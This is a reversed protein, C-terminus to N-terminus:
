PEMSNLHFSDRCDRQTERYNLRLMGPSESGPLSWENYSTENAVVDLVRSDRLTYVLGHQGNGIANRPVRIKQTKVGVEGSARLYQHSLTVRVPSYLREKLGVSNTFNQLWCKFCSKTRKGERRM